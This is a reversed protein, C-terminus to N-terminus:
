CKDTETETERVSCVPLMGTVDHDSHILNMGDVPTFRFERRCLGLPPVPRMKSVQPGPNLGAGTSGM